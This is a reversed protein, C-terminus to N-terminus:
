AISGGPFRWPLAVQRREPHEALSGFFLHGHNLVREHKSLSLMLPFAEFSEVLRGSVRLM